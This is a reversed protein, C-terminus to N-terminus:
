RVGRKCYFVKSPVGNLLISSAGSVLVDRIWILWKQPFGKHQLMQIIVKHEVKDFAKKFDVKL